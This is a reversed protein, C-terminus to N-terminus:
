NINIIKSLILNISLNNELIQLFKNILNEHFNKFMGNMYLDSFSMVEQFKSLLVDTFFNTQIISNLLSQALYIKNQNILSM